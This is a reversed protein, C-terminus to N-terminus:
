VPTLDARRPRGRGHGGPGARRRGPPGRDRRERGDARGADGGRPRGPAGIAGIATTLEGPMVRVHVGTTELRGVVADIQDQTAQPTMVIMMPGASGLHTSEGSPRTQIPQPNGWERGAPARM